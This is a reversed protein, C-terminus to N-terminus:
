LFNEFSLRYLYHALVFLPMSCVAGCEMIKGMHTFGGTQFMSFGQSHALVAKSAHYVCFAVYPSPDYSRGGVIIDFGPESQMADIFPEPGMQAVITVAEEVDM